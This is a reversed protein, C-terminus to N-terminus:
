ARIVLWVAFPVVIWALSFLVIAYAAFNYSQDKPPDGCAGITEYLARLPQDVALRIRRRSIAAAYVAVWALAALVLFLVTAFIVVGLRSDLASRVVSQLTGFVGSIFAGGLLFTPLGLTKRKFGTEVQEANIRARRLMRHEPSGWVANAERREYLERVHEVITNQHSRVIWQNVQQVGWQAVPALPGLPPLKAPRAGNRDLVEIARMTLHHAQEFRDPRWLPRPKSIQNVIDQEPKGHGGLEELLRGKEEATEARLVKLTDLRDLLLSEEDTDASRTPDDIHEATM